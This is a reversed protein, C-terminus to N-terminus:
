IVMNNQLNDDIFEGASSDILYTDQEGRATLQTQTGQSFGELKISSLVLILLLLSVIYICKM